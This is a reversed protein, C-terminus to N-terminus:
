SSLALVSTDDITTYVNFIENGNPDIKRIIGNLSLSYINNFSDLVVRMVEDDHGRFVWVQNGNPDIKRVTKDECAIYTNKFSDNVFSFVAGNHESFAWVENGDKDIKRLVNDTETNKNKTVKWVENGNPDIKRTTKDEGTSNINGDISINLSVIKSSHKEFVWIKNGNPDIKHVTKDSSGSYINGFKDVVISWITSTHGTYKWLINLNEDLKIVEGSDGIGLYINKDSDITLGSVYSKQAVDSSGQFNGELDFKIISPNKNRNAQGVVLFPKSHM